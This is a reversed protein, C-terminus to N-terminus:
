QKRNNLFIICQLDYLNIYFVIFQSWFIYDLNFNLTSTVLYFTKNDFRFTNEYHLWM